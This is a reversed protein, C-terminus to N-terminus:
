EFVVKKRINGVQEILIVGKLPEAQKGYLDFYVPIQGNLEQERIGVATFTCTKVVIVNESGMSANIGTHVSYTGPAATVKVKIIHCHDTPAWATSTETPRAKLLSWNGSWIVANGPILQFTNTTNDPVSPWGDATQANGKYNIRISDGSCITDPTIRWVNVTVQAACSLALCFFILTTKM